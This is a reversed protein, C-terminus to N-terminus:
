GGDLGFLMDLDEKPYSEPLKPAKLTPKESRIEIFGSYPDRWDDFKWKINKLRETFSEEEDWPLYDYRDFSTSASWSNLHRPEWDGFNYTYEINRM